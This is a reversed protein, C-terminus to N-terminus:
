IIESLWPLVTLITFLICAPHSPNLEQCPWPLSKEKADHGFQNQPGGLTDPARERSTFHSSCSSLWESRALSLTLAIGYTKMAHHKFLPYMKM